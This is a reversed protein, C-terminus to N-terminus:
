TTPGTIRWHAGDLHKKGSEDVRSVALRAGATGLRMWRAQGDGDAAWQPWGAATLKTPKTPSTLVFRAEVPRPAAGVIAGLRGVKSEAQATSWAGYGKAEVLVLHDAGDVTWAVILDVDEQSGTVWKAPGGDDTSPFPGDQAPRAVDGRWQLAAHLWSLHYDIAAWATEPVELGCVTSLEARFGASLRMGPGHLEHGGEDTTAAQWLFFREKRNFPSLAGALSMPPRSPTTSRVADAIQRGCLDAVARAHSGSAYRSTLDVPERSPRHATGDPDFGVLPDGTSDTVFWYQHAEAFPKVDAGNWPVQDMTRRYARFQEKAIGWRDAGKACRWGLGFTASLRMLEAVVPVVGLPSPRLDERQGPEIDLHAGLTEAAAAVSLSGEALRAWFETDTLRDDRDGDCLHVTGPRSLGLFRDPRRTDRVTLVNYADLPFMQGVELHPGGRELLAAALAWQCAIYAPDHEELEIM